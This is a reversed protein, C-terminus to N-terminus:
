AHSVFRDDEDETRVLLVPVPCRRLIAEAISGFLLREIGRRGHTGVVVLDAPWEVAQACVIQPIGESRETALAVEAAVGQAAARARGSELMAGIERRARPLVDDIVVLAPEFGDVYKMEDLVALLRLSGGQSRALAIAEDLARDSQSSGDVPVLIRRYLPAHTTAADTM